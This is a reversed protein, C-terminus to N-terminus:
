ITNSNQQWAMITISLNEIVMINKVGGWGVGWQHGFDKRNGDQTIGENFIPNNIPVWQSSLHFMDPVFPFIFFLFYDKRTPLSIQNYNHSV